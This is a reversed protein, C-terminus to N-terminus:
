KDSDKGWTRGRTGEVPIMFEEGEWWLVKKFCVEVYESVETVKDEACEIIISDFGEQVISADHLYSYEFRMLATHLYDGITGQPVHAYAERYTDDDLRGRFIRVRGFPTTLRSAQKLKAETARHWAAIEPAHSHYRALIGKADAVPRKILTAFLNPGLGYNAAHSTRKALFYEGGPKNSNDTDEERKGTIWSAVLKYAKQGNRLRALFSQCKAFIAVCYFEAQWLDFKLLTKGPSAIFMSRFDEPVNQLDLGTKDHFKKCSSRGTETGAPNYGGRARGRDDLSFGLYTGIDKILGRIELITDLQPLRYRANLKELAKENSTPKHTKREYQIPLKLEDYLYDKVQKHSTALIPHGVMENLKRNLRRLQRDKWKLLIMQRRQDVLMGRQSMRWIARVKPMAFGEFFDTLGVAKLDDDLGRKIILPTEVDKGNYEWLVESSTMNSWTKDEDKPDDKYYNVDSYISTLYALTHPLEPDVTHHAVFLDYWPPAPEGLFPALMSYDYWGYQSIKLLSSNWIRRLQGWVYYEDSKDEWYNRMGNKLPICLSMRQGRLKFGLGVCAIQLSGVVEIDIVVEHCEKIIADVYWKIQALTPRTITHFSEIIRGGNAVRVAKRMDEVVTGRLTWMERVAGPHVTPVVTFRPAFTSPYISGRWKKLIGEAKIASDIHSGSKMGMRTMVATSVNGLTIVTPVQSACDLNKFEGELIPIFDSVTLGLEGLREVKDYPPRVKVINTIYIEERKLGARALMGDLIHGDTGIFPVGLKEEEGGLSEGV